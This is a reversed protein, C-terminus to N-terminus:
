VFVAFKIGFLLELHGFYMFTAAHTPLNPISHDPTRRQGTHTM